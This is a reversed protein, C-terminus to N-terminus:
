PAEERKKFSKPRVRLGEFSTGTSRLHRIVGNSLHKTAMHLVFEPHDIPVFSDVELVVEYKYVPCGTRDIKPKWGVM